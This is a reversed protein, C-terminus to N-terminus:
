QDSSVVFESTIVITRKDCNLLHSALPIAVNNEKREAAIYRKDPISNDMM